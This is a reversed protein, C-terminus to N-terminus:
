IAGDPWQAELVAKFDALPMLGSTILKIKGEPDIFFLTPLSQVSDYLSGAGESGIAFVPYDLKKSTALGKIMEATNPPYSSVYSLAMIALKDESVTKRLEILHPITMKCPPCWTAWFKLIVNKGRYNSLKHKKGNVDTLTFDPAEKGITPMFERALAWSRAARIVDILSKKNQDPAVTHSQPTDAASPNDVKAPAEPSEQVNKSDSAGNPASESAAEKCGTLTIAVALTVVFVGISLCHHTKVTQKVM